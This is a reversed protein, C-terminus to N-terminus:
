RLSFAVDIGDEDFSIDHINIKDLADRVKDVKSLYVIAKQGEQIEVIHMDRLGPYLALVGSIITDLGTGASYSLLLRGGEFGDVMAKIGVSLPIYKNCLPVKQMHTYKVNVTKADIYSLEVIKDAKAKVLESLEQYTIQLKM